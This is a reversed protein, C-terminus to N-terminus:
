LNDEKVYHAMMFEESVRADKALSRTADQGAGAYQLSTKRLMHISADSGWKKVQEDFWCGANVHPETRPFAEQDPRIVRPTFSTQNGKTREM